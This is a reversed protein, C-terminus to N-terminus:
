ESEPRNGRIGIEHTRCLRPKEGENAAHEDLYIIDSKNMGGDCVACAVHGDPMVLVSDADHQAIPFTGIM